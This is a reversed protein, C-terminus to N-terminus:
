GPFLFRSVILIKMSMGAIFYKLGDEINSLYIGVREKRSSIDKDILIASSYMDGARMIPGQLIQPFFYFYAATTKFDLREKLRGTYLDAQYSIM